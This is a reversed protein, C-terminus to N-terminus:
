SRDGSQTHIAAVGIEAIAIDEEQSLGSVAVGGVVAGGVRVPLGGGWGIYRTDDYYCFDWGQQQAARGVDGSPSDLRAATWAKNTAVRVSTTQVGDMRELCILEGRMDAVAMVAARRRNELERRMADIAARADAYDLTSETRM